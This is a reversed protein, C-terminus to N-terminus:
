LQECEIATIESVTTFCDAQHAAAKELSHKAEMNLERAMQDGNYNKLYDYLPKNNGCISRVM